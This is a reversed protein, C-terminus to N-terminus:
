SGLDTERARRRQLSRFVVSTAEGITAGVLSGVVVDGPYHVGTHVRSYAVAAALGRLPIALGPMSGAVAGAFAFGSASHGSPFSTSTPMPVWRQMPVGARERDPRARGSALKMPLNVLASNAGVAVLGTVAARRGARGGAVFLVGAAGLWLKSNNALGSLRRLPEDLTPTPTSAIARYVARDVEALEHLVAAAASRRPGPRAEIRRALREGPPGQSTPDPTGV